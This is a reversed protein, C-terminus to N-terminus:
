LRRTPPRHSWFVPILRHSRPPRRTVAPSAGWKWTAASFCRQFPFSWRKGSGWVGRETQGGVARAGLADEDSWPEGFPTKRGGGGECVHWLPPGPAGTCAPARGWGARGRGRWVREGSGLGPGISGVGVRSSSKPPRGRRRASPSPLLRLSSSRSSSASAGCPGRAAASGRGSPPPAPLAPVPAGGRGPLATRKGKAAAAAEGEEEEAAAAAEGVLAATEVTAAAEM